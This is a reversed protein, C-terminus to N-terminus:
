RYNIFGQQYTVGGTQWQPAERGGGRKVVTEYPRKKRKSELM